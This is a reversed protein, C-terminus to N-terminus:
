VLLATYTHVDPKCHHEQPAGCDRKQPPPLILLVDFPSGGLNSFCGKVALALHFVGQCRRSLHEFSLCVPRWVSVRCTQHTMVPMHERAATSRVEMEGVVEMARQLQGARGALTILANYVVTDPQM